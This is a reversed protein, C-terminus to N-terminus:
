AAVPRQAASGQVVVAGLGISTGGNKTVVVRVYRKTGIYGIRIVSAAPLSAPFSGILDAAVVDAFDGPTTTDSEQVKATFDGDGAIAGTNIVVAASNFGALDIVEGTTTATLVAPAIAQVTGINSALDRM